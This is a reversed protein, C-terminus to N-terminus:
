QVVEIGHERRLEALPTDLHAEWGEWSWKRRMRRARAIVKLSGILGDWLGKLLKAVGLEQVIARWDLANVHKMQGFYRVVGVDSGAMTWVDTMAEDKVSTDTGFVVHCADHRAFMQAPGSPQAAPDLLEPNVTRYEHLGERLTLSTNQDQYRAKM